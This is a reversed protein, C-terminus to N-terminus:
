EMWASRKAMSGEAHRVEPGHRHRNAICAHQTPILCGPSSQVRTSRIVRWAVRCPSCATAAAAGRPSYTHPLVLVPAPRVTDTTLGVAVAVCVCMCVRVTCRGHCVNSASGQGPAPRLALSLPQLQRLVRGEVGLQRAHAQMGHM